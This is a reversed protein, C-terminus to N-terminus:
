LVLQPYAIQTCGNVNYMVNHVFWYLINYSYITLSWYCKFFLISKNMSQHLAATFVNIICWHEQPETTFCQTLLVFPQPNLEWPVCESIFFDSHVTLWKPYFCGSFAYIYIINYYYMFYVYLYQNKNKVKRKILSDKPSFVILCFKITTEILRCLWKWCQYYYYINISCWILMNSHNRFSRTVSFAPIIISVIWSKM